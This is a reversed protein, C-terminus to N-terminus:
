RAGSHDSTLSKQVKGPRFLAVANETASRAVAEELAPLRRFQELLAGGIGLKLGPITYTATMKATGSFYHCVGGHLWNRHRRLIALADRHAEWIHPIVPLKKRHTLRLQWVFGEEKRVLCPFQSFFLHHSLPAHTDIFVPTLEKRCRTNKENYCLKRGVPCFGM